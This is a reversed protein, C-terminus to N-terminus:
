LKKQSILFLLPLVEAVWSDAAGVLPARPTSIGRV